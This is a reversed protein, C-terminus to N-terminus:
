ISLIICPKYRRHCDDNIIKKNSINLKPGWFSVAKKKRMGEGTSVSYKKTNKGRIVLINWKMLNEIYHNAIEVM